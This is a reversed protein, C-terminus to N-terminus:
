RTKRTTRAPVSREAGVMRMSLNAYFEALEEPTLENTPDFWEAIQNYVNGIAITLQRAPRSGVGKPATFAGSSLGRGVVTEYISQIHRRAGVVQDYYPDELYKFERHAIVAEKYNAAHFQAAAYVLSYLQRAPDSGAESLAALYQKEIRGHTEMLLTFLLKQKSDYHFYMAGPSVGCLQAIDRTNTEAFGKRWFLEIGAQILRRALAEDAAAKPLRAVTTRRAATQSKAM